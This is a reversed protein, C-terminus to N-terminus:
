DNEVSIVLDDKISTNLGPAPAISGPIDALLEDRSNIDIPPQKMKVMCAVAHPTAYSSGKVAPLSIGAPSDVLPEDFKGDHGAGIGINVFQKSFNEVIGFTAGGRGGAMNTNRVTTVTVVNPHADSNCAPFRLNIGIDTIDNARVDGRNGAANILWIKAAHLRDIYNELLLNPTQSYFGWSANIAVPNATLRASLIYEFGCLIDFLSGVGAQDIVKLPLVRVEYNLAKGIIAAIRSGHKNTDDDDFPNNQDYVFDWGIYDPEVTGCQSIGGNYLIPVKQTNPYAFDIGTDMVVVVPFTKWAGSDHAAKIRRLQKDFSVPVIPTAGGGGGSSTNIKPPPTITDPSYRIDNASSTNIKPPPTITDPSYEIDVKDTLYQIEDGELLVLNPNCHSVRRVRVQPQSLIKAKNRKIKERMDTGTLSIRRVNLDLPKDLHVLLQNKIVIRTPDGPYREVDPISYGRKRLAAFKQLHNVPRGSKQRSDHEDTM